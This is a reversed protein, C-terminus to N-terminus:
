PQHVQAETIDGISRLTRLITVGSDIASIITASDAASGHVITNRLQWFSTLAQGLSQPIVNSETLQTVVKSVIWRQAINDMDNLRVLRRLEREIEMSVGLLGIEPSTASLSLINTIEDRLSTQDGQGQGAERIVGGGRLEVGGSISHTIQGEIAEPPSEGVERAATQANDSTESALAEAEGGPSKVHLYRIRDILRSTPHRFLWVIWVIVSWPIAAKLLDVAMQLVLIWDHAQVCVEAVMIKLRDVDEM